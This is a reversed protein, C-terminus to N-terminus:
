LFARAEEWLSVIPAGVQLHFFPFTPKLVPRGEGRHSFVHLRPVSPWVLSLSTPFFFFRGFGGPRGLEFKELLEAMAGLPHSILNKQQFSTTRPFSAAVTLADFPFFHLYSSEPGCGREFSLDARFFCFRCSAFRCDPGDLLARVSIVAGVLPVVFPFLLVPFTLLSRGPALEPSFLRGSLRFFFPCKSFRNLAFVFRHDYIPFVLPLSRL